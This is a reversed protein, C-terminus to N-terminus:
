REAAHARSEGSGSGGGGCGRNAAAAEAWGDQTGKDYHPGSGSGGKGGAAEAWGDQIGKDYGSDGGGGGSKKGAEYGAKFGVELADEDLDLMYMDVGDTWKMFANDKPWPDRSITQFGGGGVGIEDGAEIVLRSFCKKRGALMEADLIARETEAEIHM